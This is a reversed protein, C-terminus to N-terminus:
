DPEALLEARLTQRTGPGTRFDEAIRHGVVWAIKGRSILVPCVSRLRRPVKRNVFFDSVKQTGTMGLPRFRDGPRVNRVTVPFAFRGMDFFAVRHGSRTIQAEGAPGSVTLRLTGGGGPIRVEGPGDLVFEYDVPGPSPERGPRRLTLRDYTRNAQVGRPLDLQGTGKKQLVLLRVAEIHRYGVRRLDGTLEAVATRLVRRCAAEALRALRSVSLAIRDPGRFVLAEKLRDAALADLWRDEDRVVKSLRLLTDVLNPNYAATLQPILEHRIRNRVLSRDTNSTDLVFPIDHRNLYQRLEEKRLDILPRIFRGRRPSIGALGRRGAGRLFFLLVSEVCDDAHHGLAIKSFGYRDATRLLFEYRLRRAAEELSLRQRRRYEEVDVRESFFAIGMSEAQRAAFEADRDAEEGRLGHHLHAAAIPVSRIRGIRALLHLLATSDPGGSAAVLVADGPALMRNTDVTGLVRSILDQRSSGNPSTPM